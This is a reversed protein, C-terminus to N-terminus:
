VQSTVNKFYNTIFTVYEPELDTLANLREQFREADIDFTLEEGFYINFDTAGKRPAAKKPKREESELPAITQAFTVTEHEAVDIEKKQMEPL